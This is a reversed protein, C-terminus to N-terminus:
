MTDTIREHWSLASDDQPIAKLRIPGAPAGAESLGQYVHLAHLRALELLALFTAVLMPRSASRGGLARGGFLDMFEVSEVRELQEMVEIMRERVTIVETEVEHALVEDSRELIQKFAAILEFLGVEIEREGDPVSEPAPGQAEFVDRGLLRKQSLTDAVEKYRQYELLRMVLEARPDIADEEDEGEEAPLLMRSKILALTAAMVLYEAAVDLNLEQMIEIYALYQEAISAIPIDTVDVENQRILHLLLDLPGEFVPLKVAYDGGAQGLAAGIAAGLAGGSEPAADDHTDSLSM